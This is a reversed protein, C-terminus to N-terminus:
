KKGEKKILKERVRKTTPTECNFWKLDNIAHRMERREETTKKISNDYLRREIETIQKRTEAIVKAKQKDTLYDFAVNNRQMKKWEGLREAFRRLYIM